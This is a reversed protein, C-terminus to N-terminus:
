VIQPMVYSYTYWPDILVYISQESINDKVKIMSSQHDVQGEELSIYINPTERVIDGVTAANELNHLSRPDEWQHPFDMLWHNGGCGWCQLPGKAQSGTCLHTESAGDCAVEILEDWFYEMITIAHVGEEQSLEKKLVKM